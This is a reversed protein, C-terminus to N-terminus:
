QEGMLRDLLSAHLGVVAPDDPGRPPSSAPILAQDITAPEGTM